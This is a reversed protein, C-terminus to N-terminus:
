IEHFKVTCSIHFDEEDRVCDAEETAEYDTGQQDGYVAGLRM